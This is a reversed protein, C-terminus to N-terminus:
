KEGHADRHIASLEDRAISSEVSKEADFFGAIEM